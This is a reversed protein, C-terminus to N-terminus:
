RERHPQDPRHSLHKGPNVGPRLYLGGRCDYKPMTLELGPVWCRGDSAHVRHGDRLWFKAGLHRRWRFLSIGPQKRRCTRNLVDAQKPTAWQGLAARRSGRKLASDQTRTIFAAMQERTVNAAPSYTTATTGNTLGTFFAQAISCFFINTGPVDTFPLTLSQKSCTGTDAQMRTSALILIAVLMLLMTARRVLSRSDYAKRLM